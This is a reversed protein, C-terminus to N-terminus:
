SDRASISESIMKRMDRLIRLYVKKQIGDSAVRVVAKWDKMDLESFCRAVKRSRRM